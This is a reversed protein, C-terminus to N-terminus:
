LRSNSLWFKGRRANPGLAQLVGINAREDLPWHLCLISECLNTLCSNHLQTQEAGEAVVRERLIGDVDVRTTADATDVTMLNAMNLRQDRTSSKPDSAAVFHTIKAVVSEHTDSIEDKEVMLTAHLRGFQSLEPSRYLYSFLVVLVAVFGLLTLLMFM